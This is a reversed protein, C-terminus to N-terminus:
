LFWCMGLPFFLHVTNHKAPRHGCLTQAIRVIRHELQSHSGMNRWRESLGDYTLTEEYAGSVKRAVKAMLRDRLYRPKDTAKGRPAGQGGSRPQGRLEGYDGRTRVVGSKLFTCFDEAMQM